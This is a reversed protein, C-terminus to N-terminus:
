KKKKRKIRGHETKFIRSSKTAATFPKDGKALQTQFKTLKRTEPKKEDLAMTRKLDAQRIRKNIMKLETRRQNLELKKHPLFQIGTKRAVNKDFELTAIRKESDKKRGFLEKLKTPIAGYSKRKNVKRMHGKVHVKKRGIKRTHAKIRKRVLKIM